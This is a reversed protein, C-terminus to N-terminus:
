QQFRYKINNEICWQEVKNCTFRHAFEDIGEKLEPYANFYKWFTDVFQEGQLKELITNLKANGKEELFAKIVAENSVTVFPILGISVFYATQGIDDPRDIANLASINKVSYDKYSFWYESSGSACKTLLQSDIILEM